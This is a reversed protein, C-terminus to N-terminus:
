FPENHLVFTFSSVTCVSFFDINYKLQLTYVSKLCHFCVLVFYLALNQLRDFYSEHLALRDVSALSRCFAVYM